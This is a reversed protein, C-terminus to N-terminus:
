NKLKRYVSLVMNWYHKIAWKKEFNKRAITNFRKKGTYNSYIVYEVEISKKFVGMIERGLGM